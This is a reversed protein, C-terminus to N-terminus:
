NKMWISFAGLHSWTSLTGASAAPGLSKLTDCNTKQNEEGCCRSYNTVAAWNPELKRHWPLYSFLLSFLQLDMQHLIKSCAVWVSRGTKELWISYLPNSSHLVCGEEQIWNQNHHDPLSFCFLVYYYSNCFLKTIQFFSEKKGVGQENEEPKGSSIGSISRCDWACFSADSRKWFFKPKLSSLRCNRECM